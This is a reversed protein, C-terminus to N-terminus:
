NAVTGPLIPSCYASTWARNYRGRISVISSAILPSLYRGSHVVEDRETFHEQPEGERRGRAELGRALEVHLEAAGLGVHRRRGRPEAHTDRPDGRQGVVRPTLAHPALEGPVADVAAAHARDGARPEPEVEELVARRRPRDAHEVVPAVRRERPQACLVHVPLGHPARADDVEAPDRRREAGTERASM